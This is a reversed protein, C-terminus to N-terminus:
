GFTFVYLSVGQPVRLTLTHRGAEPLDLVTYMRAEHVTIESQQKGDLLVHIASPKDAQMVLYVHQANFNLDLTCDDDGSTISEKHANWRGKLGVQDAGLNGSYNYHTTEDPQIVIEPQYNNGRQSGLYTEPTIPMTRTQMEQEATIPNLSLLKRIANEMEEYDGEGFHIKRIIGQQDILYHAPWYHNNYNQWTKYDNDLAVPYKIGFRKIADQVNSVKKEFEFEPTHVGIIVLGKDHYTDYWKTVYPLTRVCNICSYTWFDILVVKGRLQELTLPKSNLWTDIGVIAPASSGVETGEYPRLSSLAKKVMANEEINITPFYNVVLRQLFVDAHFAIAFASAIMLIGFLKRIIETYGSLAGISSVIRNGGYAIFVMPVAAGLSYALTVMITAITISSTAVLTTITALIPGACPTWILGLAVGAVLGSLFGSGLLTSREQLNTGLQAIGSTLAAFRDGLRPFLMILGLLAIMGIAGYRLWEASIGTARVLATLSLTFFSFSVMLGIMIGLPRYRGQGAGTALLIPLIPLICPSLVTVLGALVAFLLLVIM